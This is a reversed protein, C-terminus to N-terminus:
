MKKRKRLERVGIMDMEDKARIIEKFIPKENKFTEVYKKGYM